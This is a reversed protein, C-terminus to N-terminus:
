ATELALHLLFVDDLLDLSVGEVEFRALLLADFGRQSALARALLCALFLVLAPRILLLSGSGGPAARSLQVGLRSLQLLSYQYKM